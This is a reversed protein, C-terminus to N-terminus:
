REIKELLLTIKGSYVPQESLSSVFAIGTEGSSAIANGNYTLQGDSEALKDLVNTNSHTHKKDVADDIDAIAKGHDHQKNVASDIDQVSSSPKNTLNNWDLVLDLAEGEAIKEYRNNNSNNEDVIYLYLASGSGVTEDESADKVWVLQMDPIDVLNHDRAHINEAFIVPAKGAITQNLSLIAREYKAILEHLFAKTTKDWIDETKWICRVKQETEEDTRLMTVSYEGNGIYEYNNDGM